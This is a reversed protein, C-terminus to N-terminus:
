EDRSPPETSGGWMSELKQAIEDDTLERAPGQPFFDDWDWVRDTSDGRHVNAVVAAITGFRM